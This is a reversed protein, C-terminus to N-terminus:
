AADSVHERIWQAFAPESIKGSALRNVVDAVEPESAGLNLGNLGLFVYAAQFATRKNGDIYGHNKVLGFAYAAAFLAIDTEGYAHKHRPRVLASEILGEDRIGPSGGHERLQADHIADLLVRTLWRPQAAGERVRKGKARPKKYVVRKRGESIAAM